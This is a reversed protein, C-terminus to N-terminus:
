IYFIVLVSTFDRRGAPSIKEAGLIALISSCALLLAAYSEKM